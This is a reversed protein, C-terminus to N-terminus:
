RIAPPNVPSGVAGTIPPPPAVFLFDYCNDVVAGAEALSEPDFMKGPHIGANVLLIVHMGPRM